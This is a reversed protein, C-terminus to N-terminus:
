INEDEWNTNLKTGVAKPTLIHWDNFHNVLKLYNDEIVSNKHTSVSGIIYLKDGFTGFRTLDSM